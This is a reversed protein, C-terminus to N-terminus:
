SFHTKPRPQLEGDVFVDVKEDYFAVLGAIPQSERLPTDYSWALDARLGEDTRISWYRATGKYPCMSVTPTSVLRTMDVDVKPLYTRRPLGTEFLFTPHTSSAVVVGDVEVRVERSSRLIDVRSYPDRPHVFVEEDEEFWADMASWEFRVRDRLAEIPSDLHRLAADKRVEGGGRVTYHSADGRSPSRTITETPELAGSKVDPVPFYYQPFMPIEWVYLADKTDAIVEGGLMVRVRKQSPETRVRGRQEDSM